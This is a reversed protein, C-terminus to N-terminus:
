CLVCLLRVTASNHISSLSPKSDPSFGAARAKLPAFTQTALPTLLLGLFKLIKVEKM